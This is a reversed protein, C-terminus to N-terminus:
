GLEDSGALYFTQLVYIMVKHSIALIFGLVAHVRM